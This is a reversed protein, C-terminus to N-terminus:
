LCLSVTHRSVGSLTDPLWSEKSSLMRFESSLLEIEQITSSNKYHGGRSVSHYVQSWKLFYSVYSASLFDMVCLHM